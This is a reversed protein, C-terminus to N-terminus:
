HNLFYKIDSILTEKDENTLSLPDIYHVDTMRNRIWTLQRKAYRRSDQKLQNIVDELEAEKTFYPFLEKYGIAKVAQNDTPLDQRFLWQAEELLGAELMVDVRENIREYLQARNTDLAIVFLDYPSTHHQHTEQQESFLQESFECVELMRIVRRVNNPHVQKAAEPDVKKLQEYVVYSGEREALQTMKQRFEPHPEVKGGLSLDYLFAELYLGTGGVLIPQHNKTFIKKMAKQAELKFESASFSQDVSRIDVLHHPVKAQEADTPKATGIALERYIQMSDGNIIEGDIAQAIEISLSTKGIGTPGTIVILKPKKMNGGM